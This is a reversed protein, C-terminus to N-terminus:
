IWFKLSSLLLSAGPVMCIEWICANRGVVLSFLENASLFGSGQQEQFHFILCMGLPCIWFFFSIHRHWSFLLFNGREGADSDKRKLIKRVDKRLLFKIMKAVVCCWSDAGVGFASVWIASLALRVFLSNYWVLFFFFFLGKNPSLVPLRLLGCLSFSSYNIWLYSQQCLLLWVLCLFLQKLLLISTSRLRGVCSVKSHVVFFFSLGYVFFLFLFVIPILLHTVGNKTEPTKKKKKTTKVLGPLSVSYLWFHHRISVGTPHSSRRTMSLNPWWM